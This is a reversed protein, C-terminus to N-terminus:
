GLIVVFLVPLAASSRATPLCIAGLEARSQEVITSPDDVAPASHCACRITAALFGALRFATLGCCRQVLGDTSLRAAGRRGFGVRLPHRHRVPAAAAGM